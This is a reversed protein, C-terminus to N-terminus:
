RRVATPPLLFRLIRPLRAAWASENHIAGEDEMYGLTSGLVFGRRVLLDRFARLELILRPVGAGASKDEATGMDIWIRLPLHEAPASAYRKEIDSDGWSLVPSVGGILGFTERAAIGAYLSVLGGLSSGVLATHERGPLTRFERDIRPKLERVLFQLYLDAAGGTGRGSDRVQTYEDMRRPSNAVAVAIAEPMEGSTALRELTEDAQWEIGIFATSADFVNQGDHFYIVPYRRQPSSAYSPPLYVWVDRENGLAQSAVRGLHRINGALTPRRPTVSEVQDRWKSVAVQVTEARAITLRRNAIEEGGPGKEVTEWSGRTIKYEFAMGPPLELTTALAHIGVRHLQVKGPDWPGLEPLNGSIYISDGAPTGAPVGVRFTVPVGAPAALAFVALMSVSVIQMPIAPRLRM